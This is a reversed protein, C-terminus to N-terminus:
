KRRAVFFTMAGAQDPELTYYKRVIPEILWFNWRAKVLNWRGTLRRWILSPLGLYHGWEFVRIAEPPFYNWHKELTFGAEELRKQWVEPSDCHHHRSIRNFFARYRNGLKHMRLQDLARGVSLSPLFNHNPSCFVFIAGPKLVRGTEKLVEEINPIHELVSNSVASNFYAEPFPMEAGNAQILVKYIRYQKAEHIPGTWPDIGIDLPHDFALSAFHGDGCGLDLTPGPLDIGQYFAAEIARLMARFYPLDRLHLWLYDKSKHHNKELNVQDM